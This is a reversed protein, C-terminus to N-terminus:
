IIIQSIHKTASAVEDGISARQIGIARLCTLLIENCIAGGGDVHLGTRLAGGAGGALVVPMSDYTHRTGDNLESTAFVCCHDLLTGDGLMYGDLKGLLYAFREMIFVVSKHLKESQPELKEDLGRDDHTMVHSGETAGIQWFVADSQMTTFAVSFVRTLDCALALAIMDSMIANKQEFMEQAFDGQILFSNKEGPEILNLECVSKEYVDINTRLSHIGALHADLRIQDAHGLRQRLDRADELVADLMSRRAANLADRRGSDIQPSFGEFFRQFVSRPSREVSLFSGSEDIMLGHNPQSSGKGRLAVGVDMSGHPTATEPRSMWEKSVIYPLSPGRPSGYKGARSDYTGTLIAARGRHHATGSHAVQYNSLVNIKDRFPVLPLLSESPMWQAGFGQPMWREPRVGNGWFWMGFRKPIAEGSAYATGNANFMAELPPLALTCLAGGLSGRLFARRDLSKKSFKRM